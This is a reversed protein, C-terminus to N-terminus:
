TLYRWRKEASGAVIDPLDCSVARNPRHWRIRRPFYIVPGLVGIGWGNDQWGWGQIGCGLCDEQNVSTADSTGIRFVPSGTSTVSGSFQVFFSDNYPSNLQAKSRTWFRYAKGAQASFTMEFYSQPASLPTAAKAAGADPNLLFAGGAASADTVRNWAGVKLSADATYLVIDSSLSQAHLQRFSSLLTIFLVLVCFGQLARKFM